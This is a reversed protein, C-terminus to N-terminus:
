IHILSLSTGSFLSNYARIFLNGDYNPQIPKLVHQQQGNLYIAIESLNCHQFNFPNQRRSGNFATNSVLGVVLQMPLQGSVVKEFTVNRFNQPIALVKCINRKIQYKATSNQLEQAHAVFVLPSIKVKGVFLSAHTIELKADSPTNGMLCFIDKSRVLHM